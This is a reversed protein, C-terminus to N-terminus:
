LPKSCSAKRPLRWARHADTKRRVYAKLAGQGFGGIAAAENGTVIPGDAAAERGSNRGYQRRGFGKWIAFTKVHYTNIKRWGHKSIHAIQSRNRSKSAIPWMSGPEMSLALVSTSFPIFSSAAWSSQPKDRLRPFFSRLLSYLKRRGPFKCSGQSFQTGIM